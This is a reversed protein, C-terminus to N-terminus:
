SLMPLELQSSKTWQQKSQSSTYLALRASFCLRVSYLPANISHSVSTCAHAM